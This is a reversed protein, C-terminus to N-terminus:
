LFESGNMGRDVVVEILISVEIASINELLVAGGRDCFPTMEGYSQESQKQDASDPETIRVFSALASSSSSEYTPLEGIHQLALTRQQSNVSM